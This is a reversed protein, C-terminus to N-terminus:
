LKCHKERSQYICKVHLPQKSCLLYGIFFFSYCVNKNGVRCYDERKEAEKRNWFSSNSIAPASPGIGFSHSSMGSSTGSRGDEVTSCINFLTFTFFHLYGTYFPSKLLLQYLLGIIKCYFNSMVIPLGM